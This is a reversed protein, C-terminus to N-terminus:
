VHNMYVNSPVYTKYNHFAPAAASLADISPLQTNWDNTSCSPQVITASLSRHSIFMMHRFVYTIYIITGQVNDEGCAHM